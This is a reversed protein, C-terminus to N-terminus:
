ARWRCEDAWPEPAVEGTHSDGRRRNRRGQSQEANLSIKGDAELKKANTLKGKTSIALEDGAKTIGFGDEAHENTIDAETQM